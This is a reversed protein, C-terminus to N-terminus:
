GRRPPQSSAQAPLAQRWQQPSQGTQRRFWRSFYNPDNFGLEEAVGAVSQQRMLLEQARQQLLRARWQGLTLGSEARLRRNLYDQQYGSRNAVERLPAHPHSRMVAAIKQALPPPSAGRMGFLLADLISLVLSSAALSHPEPHRSTLRGLRSLLHRLERLVSGPLIEVRPKMRGAGRWDFDIALCIPRRDAERRFAHEVRPPLFVM